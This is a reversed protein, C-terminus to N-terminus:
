MTVQESLLKKLKKLWVIEAESKEKSGYLMIDDFTMDVIGKGQEKTLRFHNCINVIAEEESDSKRIDAVMAEFDNDCIKGFASLIRIQKDIYKPTIASVNIQLSGDPLEVTDPKTYLKM